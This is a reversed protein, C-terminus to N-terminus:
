DKRRYHLYLLLAGVAVVLTTVIGVLLGVGNSPDSKALPPGGPAFTTVTTSAQDALRRVALGLTTSV